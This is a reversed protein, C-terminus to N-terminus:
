VRIEEISIFVTVSVKRRSIKHRVPNSLIVIKIIEIQCATNVHYVENWILIYKIKNYMTPTEFDSPYLHKYTVILM